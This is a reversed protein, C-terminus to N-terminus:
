CVGLLMARCSRGSTDAPSFSVLIHTIGVTNSARDTTMSYSGTAVPGGSDFITWNKFAANTLRFTAGTGATGGVGDNGQEYLFVWSNNAVVTISSILEISGDSASQNSALADPQGSQTAGTYSASGCLLYHSSSASVVISQSGTPPAVILYVYQWRTSTLIPGGIKTALTMANGGWTVGALDDAGGATNDGLCGVFGIRNSGAATHSWTLSTTIGGNNGGDATADLGIQGFGAVSLGFVLAVIFLIRKRM